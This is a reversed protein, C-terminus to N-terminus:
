YAIADFVMKAIALKLRVYICAYLNSNLLYGHPCHIKLLHIRNPLVPILPMIQNMLVCASHDSLYLSLFAPALTFMVFVVCSWHKKPRDVLNWLFCPPMVRSCKIYQLFAFSFICLLISSEASCLTNDWNQFTLLAFYYFSSTKNHVKTIYSCRYSKNAQHLLTNVNLYSVFMLNPLSLRTKLHRFM